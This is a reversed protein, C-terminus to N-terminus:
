YGESIADTSCIDQLQELETGTVELTLRSALRPM